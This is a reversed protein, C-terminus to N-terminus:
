EESEDTLDGPPPVPSPADFANDQHIDTDKDYVSALLEGILKVQDAKPSAILAFQQRRRLNRINMTKAIVGAVNIGARGRSVYHVFALLRNVSVVDEEFSDDEVIQIFLGEDSNVPKSSGYAIADHAIGRGDSSLIIILPHSAAAELSTAIEPLRDELAANVSAVQVVVLGAESIGTRLAEVIPADGSLLHKM